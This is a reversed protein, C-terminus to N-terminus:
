GSGPIADANFDLRALYVDTAWTKSCRHHWGYLLWKGDMFKAKDADIGLWKLTVQSRGLDTSDFLRPEGTMTVKIRMVMNLMDMYTQRARGDMYDGYKKGLDGASFEPISAINTWGRNEVTPKSYGRDSGFSPNTKNQTNADKVFVSQEGTDTIKDLYQGSIASIGSTVLKTNFVVLLSDHLMEWKLTDAIPDSPRGGFKIVLPGSQDGVTAPDRLSPTYSEEINIWINNEDEGNSVLWSTKNKTLSSSWELLSTIFTKPDQRMMWWQSKADTTDSVKKMVGLGGISGPLYDNLVQMIVGSDGGIKGKYVAGSSKGNNIYFSVPDVAIFEFFGGYAAQGKADMDSIVARRWPTAYGELWRVRFKVITPNMNQRATQFYNQTFVSSLLDFGHDIIKARIIFGGNVLSKWEFGGVLDGWNRAIDGIYVDVVFKPTQPTAM